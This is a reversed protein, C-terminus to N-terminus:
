EEFLYAIRNSNGGMLFDDMVKGAFTEVELRNEFPLTQSAHTMANVVHFASDGPESNFSNKLTDTFKDSYKQKKALNELTKLPNPVQIEKTRAFRDIIQDGAQLAKDIADAVRNQMEYTTLHVHRQQMLAQGGVRAVLGNSCVLRFLCSEIRLSSAGVESNTVHIGVMVDDKKLDTGINVSLEPFVARFNMYKSNLDFNKVDVVDGNQLAYGLGKFVFNNDLQSYKDTLVGRLTDQKGRLLWQKDGEQDEEMQDMWYNFHNALLKGDEEACKRAYRVPIGVRSALQGLAHDDPMMGLHNIGIQGPTGKDHNRLGIVGMNNMRVQSVPVTWDKKGQDDFDIKNAVEQWAQKM